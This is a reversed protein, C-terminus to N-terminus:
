QPLLNETAIKRNDLLLVILQEVFHPYLAILSLACIVLCHLNQPFSKLKGFDLAFYELFSNQERM